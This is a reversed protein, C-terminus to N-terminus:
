IEATIEYGNNTKKIVFKDNNKHIRDHCLECINILNAVHNKHFNTNKKVIFNDRANKQYELHHIETGNNNKCIECIDKIKLSNYRSVDQSLVNKYCKNYKIRLDHARTLFDQPLNLSKCVELGYMSEGAGEKLKRDYILKNNEIDFIVSMHFMKLHKLAIIEDYKIIEHFHTAFLFTCKNKHLIELGSVFISLASDSETGSCLEDGLILSNEDAMQLITRLETMEVAFTSLGKFINDNGLIRTFLTNYPYYTFNTAPVYLGAQAMIISIGIAKIFSTKGVANTGYLLIGNSYIEEDEINESVKGLSLDNTIYIERTNIHEILAHRIGKFNIFSKDNEKITPKCYNYEKAIYCKCQLIDLHIVFNIIPELDYKIFQDIFKYYYLELENIVDNKSTNILSSIKRIQQSTIIMNSQNGSSINTEITTLDFIYNEEENSYNSKYSLSVSKTGNTIELEIAKKLFTSRRKTTQLTSDNKATEHIKIFESTKTSKEHKSVLDSLYKRICELEQGCELTKKYCLDVKDDLNKNIYFINNIDWSGLKEQSVDDIMKSKNLDLNLNIMEKLTKCFECLENIKCENTDQLFQILKKDKKCSNYLSIIIELNDYLITFDKPTIKKMILKRRLKEMDRINTLLSRYNDWSKKNLLHDTIYYSKNLYNIDNVPNLLNYLFKRKGMQTVCNNLLNSVCSYKGSYRDDPIINLQKLSHNALVLRDTYNELLPESINNILNPNHRYTFDLLYIFSQVAICYNQLNNIIIEDNKNPYFQKIIERQYNQKEANKILKITDNENNSLLSIKHIKISNISTFNIIDDIINESLNTIIVCENPKYISIYRELEDYTSPNHLYEKSFEFISTKGTYIDINSIGITIQEPLCMASKSYHIWVCTINNSLEKTDNSFYTGPSFITNLSRTTNKSPTDQTYVPITFGHEQLKKIYKELQPLGFGAMVVKSKGVCINKRSITMDNIDAFESISSGYINNNEDLLGYSEFFSGVQILVLTKEGYEKKWKETYNLYDQVITM